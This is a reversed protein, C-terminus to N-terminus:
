RNNDTELNEDVYYQRRLERKSEDFTPETNVENIQFKIDLELGNVKM